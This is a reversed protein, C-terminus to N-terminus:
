ATGPMTNRGATILGAAALILIAVAAYPETTANLRRNVKGDIPRVYWALVAAMGIMLIGALVNLM